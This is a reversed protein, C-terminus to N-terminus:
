SFEAKSLRVQWCFRILSLSTKLVAERLLVRGCGQELDPFGGSRQGWGPGVPGGGPECCRPEERGGDGSAKVRQQGEGPSLHGRSPTSRPNSRAVSAVSLVSVSPQHCLACRGQLLVLYGPYDRGQWFRNGGAAAAKSAAPACCGRQTRAAAPHPVPQRGVGVANDLSDQELLSVLASSTKKRNLSQRLLHM